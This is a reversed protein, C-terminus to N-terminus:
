NKIEAHAPTIIGASVILKLCEEISWGPDFVQSPKVAFVFGTTPNPVTPVFVMLLEQDMKKDKLYGTVFAPSWFGNQNVDVLVARKFAQKEKEGISLSQSLQKGVAYIPKILPIQKTINEILIFIQRGLINSTIIGIFYLCILVLLVGLGPIYRLKIFNDLFGIVKKDILVYLLQLAVTCLILPIVALLGRFIYNRLHTIFKTM